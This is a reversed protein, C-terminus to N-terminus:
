QACKNRYEITSRAVGFNENIKINDSILIAVKILAQHHICHELNYLLERFYNSDIRVEEGDIIQQLEIKKNEKELNNKIIEIQHIAFNTDTQIQKNRDRKDYNVVGCEFQNELCQFMEIIHRTHEGISASSLQECPNSFEKDSLQKLLDILENLSSNISPILM